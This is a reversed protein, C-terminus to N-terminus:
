CQCYSAILESDFSIGMDLPLAIREAQFVDEHVAPHSLDIEFGDRVIRAARILVFSSSTRPESGERDCTVEVTSTRVRQLDM